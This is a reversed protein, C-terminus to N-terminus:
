TDLLDILAVARPVKKERVSSFPFTFSALLRRLWRLSSKALRPEVSWLQIGGNDRRTEFHEIKMDERGTFALTKLLQM